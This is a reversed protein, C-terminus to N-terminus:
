CVSAKRDRKRNQNLADFRAPSRYMMMRSVARWMEREETATTPLELGLQKALEVRYLDFASNVYVGFEGVADISLAYASFSGATAVLPIWLSTLQGTWLVLFVYVTAIVVGAVALNVCLDLQAKATGLLTRFDDPLVAQLRPWVPIADIQYVVNSYVEMARFANGFKTPLVYEEDHPYNLVAQELRQSHEVTSEPNEGRARAADIEEQRELVPIIHRRFYAKEIRARWRLPHWKPYGELFRLISYNLAMLMIALLWVVAIAIATSSLVDLNVPREVINFVALEMWIAAALVAAPLFFGIAFDRDLLKPLEGFM